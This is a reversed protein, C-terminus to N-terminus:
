WQPLGIVHANHAIKKANTPLTALKCFAVMMENHMMDCWDISSGHLPLKAEGFVLYVIYSNWFRSNKNEKESERLKTTQITAYKHNCEASINRGNHADCWMLRNFFLLTFKAESWSAPTCMTIMASNLTKIRRKAKVQRLKTTSLKVQKCYQM